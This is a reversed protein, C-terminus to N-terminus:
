QATSAAKEGAGPYVRAQEALHVLEAVSAVEMKRMVRGRHVKITKEAAGLEDAIQKNLKGTIVLNFVERERPTLQQLRQQIGRVEAQESRIRRDKELSAKIAGLLDEDEFPKPLFDIAGAKMAKVSTPIDGHGTIFVIPTHVDRRLLEEQLGPGNLGPMHVDLVICGPAASDPSQLFADASAFTDVAHGAARLLRELSKLVSPDDDIIRVTPQTENM